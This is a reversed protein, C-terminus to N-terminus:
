GINFFESISGVVFIENESRTADVCRYNERCPMQSRRVRCLRDTRRVGLSIEM